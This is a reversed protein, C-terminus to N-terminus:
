RARVCMSRGYRSAQPLPVAMRNCRGAAKPFPFYCEDTTCSCCCRRRKEQLFLVSQSLVATELLISQEINSFLFSVCLLLLFLFIRQSNFSWPFFLSFFLDHSFGNQKRRWEKNAVRVLVLVRDHSTPSHRFGENGYGKLQFLSQFFM